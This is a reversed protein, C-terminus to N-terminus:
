FEGELNQMICIKANLLKSYNQALNSEEKHISEKPIPSLKVKKVDCLNETLMQKLDPTKKLEIKKVLNKKAKKKKRGQPPIKGFDEEVNKKTLIKLQEKKELIITDDETQRSTLKLNEDPEFYKKMNFVSKDPKMRLDTLLKRRIPTL